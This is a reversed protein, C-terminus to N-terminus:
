LQLLQHFSFHCIRTGREGAPAVCVQSGGRGKLMRGVTLFAVYTFPEEM